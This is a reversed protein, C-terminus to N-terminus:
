ESEKKYATFKQRTLKSGVVDVFDKPNLEAFRKVAARGDEFYMPRQTPEHFGTNVGDGEKKEWFGLHEAAKRLHTASWPFEDWFIAKISPHIVRAAPDPLLPKRPDKDSASTLRISGRIQYAPAGNEEVLKARDIINLEKAAASPVWLTVNEDKKGYQRFDAISVQEFGIESARSILSLISNRIFDDRREMLAACEEGSIPKTQGARRYYIVGQQLITKNKDASTQLDKIAIVPAKVTRKVNICFVSLKRIEHEEMEIEPVPFLHKTLMDQIKAEDIFDACGCIYRPADSVGFVVSGGKSNAFGAITRISKRLSNNDFIEKFELDTRERARVRIRGDAEEECSLWETFENKKM